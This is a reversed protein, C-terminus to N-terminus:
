ADAWAALDDRSSAGLTTLLSSVHSEVTRVSIFLQEAVTATSAGRAVLAPSAEFVEM